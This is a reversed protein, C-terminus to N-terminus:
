KHKKRTEGGTRVSPLGKGDIARAAARINNTSEKEEEFKVCDRFRLTAQTRHVSVLLTKRTDRTRPSTKYKQGSISTAAATGAVIVGHRSRKKEENKKVARLTQEM